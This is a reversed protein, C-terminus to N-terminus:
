FTVNFYHFVSVKKFADFMNVLFIDGIVLKFAGFNGKTKPWGALMPHTRFLEREASKAESSNEPLLYLQGSLTIKACLPSQPDVTSCTGLEAESLTFSSRNNSLANPGTPDFTKSLYFYPVGTAADTYSVVNGFPFGNQRDLTNLVGWECEGVLWRAFLPGNEPPPRRSIDAAPSGTPLQSVVAAALLLIAITTKMMM